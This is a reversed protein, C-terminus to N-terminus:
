KIRTIEVDLTVTERTRVTVVRQAKGGVVWPLPLNDPVVTVVHPGSSVLPFEYRGQSDTRTAYRGDLLVTVNPAGQESADRLGNDNADLFLVGTISGAGSGPAGGLPVSLSGAREEYRVSLFVARSRTIPSTDPVPILPAIPLLNRNENRNDFYSATMSWHSSLRATVGINAYAGRTTAAGNSANSSVSGDWSVNRLLDGGGAISFGTFTQRRGNANQRGLSVQTSLRSGVPLDWTQDLSIRTLRDGSESSQDVQARGIGYRNQKEVFAFEAHADNGSRRWTVGGGAGFARSFQHRTNGTFLLGNQGTGSISRVADVGGDWLWQQSRYNARYYAGAIDSSIPVYGWTLNPDLRFAGYSHLVADVRSQGDVWVGLARPGQNNESRVLNVQVRNGADNWAASGYISRADIDDAAGNGFGGFNSGALVGTRPASSVKHADVIQLGGQWGPAPTWQIAGTLLEGGLRSFGPLRLGDFLGPQGAGFQVQVDNRQLLIQRVDTSAPANVGASSKIWESSAGLVPFTPLYFRYQSRALDITPTYVTGVGNNAQWGGDFPLGRQIIALAAGRPAYRLVGDVSFAGLNSTDVRGAFAAGSEHRYPGGDSYRSGIADIRWYRPLGASDFREDDDVEAPALTGGEILRDVYRTAPDGSEGRAAQGSVTGAICLGWALAAAKM